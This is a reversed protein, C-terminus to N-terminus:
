NSRRTLWLTLCIIGHCDKLMYRAQGSTKHIQKHLIFSEKEVHGINQDKEILVSFYLLRLFFRDLNNTKKNKNSNNSSM